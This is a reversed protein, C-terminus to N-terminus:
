KESGFLFRITAGLDFYNVPHLVGFEYYPKIDIGATFPISLFQYEFGLTGDLGAARRGSGFRYHGGIGYVWSLRTSQFKSERFRVNHEWMLTEVNQLFNSHDIQFVKEGFIGELFNSPMLLQKITVGYLLGGRVGIGTEYHSQANSKLSIILLWSLALCLFKNTISNMKYIQYLFVGM